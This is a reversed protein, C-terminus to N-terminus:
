TFGRSPINLSTVATVTRVVPIKLEFFLIGGFVDGIFANFFLCKSLDLLFYKIALNLVNSIYSIEAM